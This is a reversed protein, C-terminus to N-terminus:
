QTRGHAASIWAAAHVRVGGCGELGGIADSEACLHRNIASKDEILLAERNEEGM